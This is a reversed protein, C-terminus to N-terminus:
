NHPRLNSIQKLLRDIDIIEFINSIFDALFRSITSTYAERQWKQWDIEALIINKQQKQRNFIKKLQTSSLGSGPAMYTM